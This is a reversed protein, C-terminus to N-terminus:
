IMFNQFKWIGFSIACYLLAGGVGEATGTASRATKEKDKSPEKWNSITVGSASM